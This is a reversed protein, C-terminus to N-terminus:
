KQDHTRKPEAKYAIVCGVRRNSRASDIRYEHISSDSGRRVVAEGRKLARYVLESMSEDDSFM